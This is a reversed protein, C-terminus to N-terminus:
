GQFQVIFVGELHGKRVVLGRSILRRLGSVSLFTSVGNKVLRLFSTIDCNWWLLTLDHRTDPTTLHSHNTHVPLFLLYHLAAISLKLSYSLRHPPILGHNSTYLSLCIPLLEYPSAVKVNNVISLM